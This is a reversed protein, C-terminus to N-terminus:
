WQNVIPENFKVFPEHISRLDKTLKRLQENIALQIFLLLIM